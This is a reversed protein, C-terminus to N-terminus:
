LGWTREPGKKVRWSGQPQVPNVPFLDRGLFPLTPRPSLPRPIPRLRGQVSQMLSSVPFPPAACHSGAGQQHPPGLFCFYQSLAQLPQGSSTETRRPNGGSRPHWLIPFSGAARRERSLSPSLAPRGGRQAAFYASLLPDM